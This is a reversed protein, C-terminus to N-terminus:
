ARDAAAYYWYDVDLEVTGDNALAGTTSVPPAQQSISRREPASRALGTLASNSGLATSDEIFADNGNLNLKSSAGITTIQGSAFEIASDGASNLM